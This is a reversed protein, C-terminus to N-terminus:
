FFIRFITVAVQLKQVRSHLGLEPLFRNLNKQEFEEQLKEAQGM